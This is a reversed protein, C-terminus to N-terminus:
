SRFLYTVMSCCLGDSVMRIGLCVTSSGVLKGSNIWTKESSNGLSELPTFRRKSYMALVSAIVKYICNFFLTKEDYNPSGNVFGDLAISINPTEELFEEWSLSKRPQVVLNITKM